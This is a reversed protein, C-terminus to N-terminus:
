HSLFIILSINEFDFFEERHPHPHNVTTPVTSFPDMPLPGAPRLPVPDTLRLILLPPAAGNRGGRLQGGNMRSNPQQQQANFANNMMLGTAEMMSRMADNMTEEISRSPVPAALTATLCLLVMVALSVKMISLAPAPSFESTARLFHVGM